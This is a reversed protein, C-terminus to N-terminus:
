RGSYGVQLMYLPGDLSGAGGGFVPSFLVNQDYVEGFDVFHAKFALSLGRQRGPMSRSVDWTAGVFAGPRSKTWVQHELGWYSYSIEAMDAEHYGFGADLSANRAAGFLWKASLGLFMHRATIEALFGNVSSDVVALSADVGVLLDGRPTERVPVHYAGGLGLGASDFRGAAAPTLDAVAPWFVPGMWIEWRGRQVEGPSDEQAAAAAGMFFLLLVLRNKKNIVNM